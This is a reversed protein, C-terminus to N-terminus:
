KASLPETGICPRNPNAQPMTQAVKARTRNADMPVLARSKRSKKQPAAKKSKAM